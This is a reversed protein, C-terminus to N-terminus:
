LQAFGARVHIRQAVAHGNGLRGPARHMLLRRCGCLGLLHARRHHRLERWQAASRERQRQRQGFPDACGSSDFFLGSIVTNSSGTNTLRIIVHGRLDWKLYVGSNIAAANQTALVQQTTADLVDVRVSRATSDWDLLYLTVKHSNGDTLNVDINIVGGSYWCGAIRGAAVGRQLARTEARSRTGCTTPRAARRSRRTRRYSTSDGFIAYGDSGYVGKWNGQTAVDSGLFSAAGTGPANITQVLNTSFSVLNTSDGSYTAVISHSGLALAATSCTATRTNGSGTLAVAACASIAVGGDSFSVSGTPNTATVTATFTVTTGTMAPNASSVLVTTTPNGGGAAHLAAAADVIGAGCLATTCDRITGTPFPRATTQLISMVQAPTLLPNRSLMLSVIGTVHPAAMSTGGYGAYIYSGSAPSTASSNITSLVAENDAGGPASIEVLSGYNSYAAKQGQRGTAAVTIVGNCNAPSSELAPRNSNGAAVVVVVGASIAANIANQTTNGCNCNQGGSDCAYGGLSLNLVWAPNANAPVGPVSLGAGWRIADTIDSTFGGCKGLVRLPLIKSVWNIGSVGTANNTAAGITGAVHAGHFTSNHAACGYLSAEAATVWDGPDSPDADRASGDNAFTSDSMFDYGGVYRGALDPHAPLSGTDIVGAVVSASGTTVTWAPPLNVGGMESPPSQYNWQSAYLPDDPLLLPQMM